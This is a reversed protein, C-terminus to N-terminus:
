KPMMERLTDLWSLLTPCTVKFLDNLGKNVVINEPEFVACKELLKKRGEIYEDLWKVRVISLKEEDWILNSCVWWLSEKKEAYDAKKIFTDFNTMLDLFNELDGFSTKIDEIEQIHEEKSQGLKKLDEKFENEPIM